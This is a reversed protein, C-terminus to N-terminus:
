SRCYFSVTKAVIVDRVFCCGRQVPPPQMRKLGVFRGLPYLTSRVGWMLKCLHKTYAEELCYEWRRMSLPFLSLHLLAYPIVFRVTLIGAGVVSSATPPFPAATPRIVCCSAVALCVLCTDGVNGLSISDVGCNLAQITVPSYSNESPIQNFDNLSLLLCQYVARMTNGLHGLLVLFRRDGRNCVYWGSNINTGM